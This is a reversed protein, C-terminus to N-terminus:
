RDRCGGTSQQAGTRREACGKAEATGLLGTGGALLGKIGGGGGPQSEASSLVQGGVALGGLLQLLLQELETAVSKGGLLLLLALLLLVAAPPLRAQSGEQVHASGSPPSGSSAM